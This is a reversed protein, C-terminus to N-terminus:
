LTELVFVFKLFVSDVVDVNVRVRFNRQIFLSHDEEHEVRDLIGLPHRPWPEDLGVEWDATEWFVNQVFALYFVM